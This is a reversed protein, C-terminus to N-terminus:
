VDPWLWVAGRAGSSDGHKPPALQTVVNDSFVHRQWLRPVEDYLRTVRSLGGGLVIVHPDLINIVHATARALREIYRDMAAKADPSESAAIHEASLGQGHDRSLGPGSLFTEICGHLGCYCRP